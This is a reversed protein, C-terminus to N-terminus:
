RTYAELLHSFEWRSQTLGSCSNSDIAGPCGGKDRQIAWITILSIPHTQAYYMVDQAESLYTVETRRPLDDIGPLLTIGEMRWLRRASLHPYLGALQARVSNLAEIAETGM